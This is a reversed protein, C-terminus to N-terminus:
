LSITKLLKKLAKRTKTRHENEFGTYCIVAKQQPQVTHATGIVTATDDVVTTRGTQSLDKSSLPKGTSWLGYIISTHSIQNNRRIWLQFVSM